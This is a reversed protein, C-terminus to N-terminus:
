FGGYVTVNGFRVGRIYNRFHGEEYLAKRPRLLCCITAVVEAVVRTWEQNSLPTDALPVTMRLTVTAPTGTQHDPLWEYGAIFALVQDGTRSHVCWCGHGGQVGEDVFNWNIQVLPNPESM